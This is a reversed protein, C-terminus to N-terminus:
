IAQLIPRADPTFLLSHFCGRLEDTISTASGRQDPAVGPKGGSRSEQLWGAFGLSVMVPFRAM